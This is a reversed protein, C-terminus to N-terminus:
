SSGIQGAEVIESETLGEEQIIYNRVRSQVQDEDRQVFKIMVFSIFGGIVWGILSINFATPRDFAQILISVLAPGLGKGLDDIIGLLSNARGRANPVTVNTLIAREIPVPIVSLFGTLLAVAAVSAVSSDGDVKNILFYMPICSLLLSTGMIIPPLRIDKKYAYHGIFGSSIVGLANGAGFTALVGTAEQSSFFSIRNHARLRKHKM